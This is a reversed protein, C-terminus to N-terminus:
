LPLRFQRGLAALFDAPESLLEAHELCVVVHQGTHKEFQFRRHLTVARAELLPSVRAAPKTAGFRFPRLSVGRISRRVRVASIRMSAYLARILWSSRFSSVRRFIAIPPRTMLAPSSWSSGATSSPMSIDAARTRDLGLASSCRLRHRSRPSEAKLSAQTICCWFSIIADRAERNTM